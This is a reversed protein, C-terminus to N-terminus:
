KGLKKSTSWKKIGKVKRQHQGDKEMAEDDNKCDNGRVVAKEKGKKRDDEWLTMLPTKTKKESGYKTPDSESRTTRGGSVTASASLNGDSSSPTSSSVPKLGLQEWKKGFADFAHVTWNPQEYHRKAM